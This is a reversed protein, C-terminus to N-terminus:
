QHGLNYGFSVGVEGGNSVAEVGVAKGAIKLM